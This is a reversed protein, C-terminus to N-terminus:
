HCFDTYYVPFWLHSKIRNRREGGMGASSRQPSKMTGCHWCWDEPQSSHMLTWGSHTVAVAPRAWFFLSFSAFTWTLELHAHPHCENFWQVFNFKLSPGHARSLNIKRNWPLKQRLLIWPIRWLPFPWVMERILAGFPQWVQSTNNNTQRTNRKWHCWFM